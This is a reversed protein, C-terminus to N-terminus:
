IVLVTKSWAFWFCVLIKFNKESSKMTSSPFYSYDLLSFSHLPIMKIFWKRCKNSITSILWGKSLSHWIGYDLSFCICQFDIKKYEKTEETKTVYDFYTCLRKKCHFKFELQFFNSILILINYKFMKLNWIILNWVTM